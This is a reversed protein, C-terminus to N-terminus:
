RRWISALLTYLDKMEDVGHVKLLAHTGKCVLYLEHEPYFRGFSSSFVVLVHMHRISLETRGHEAGHKKRDRIWGDADALLVRSINCEFESLRGQRIGDRSVSVM